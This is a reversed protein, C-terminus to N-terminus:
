THMTALLVDRQSPDGQSTVVVRCTYSATESDTHSWIDLTVKVNHKTGTPPVDFTATGNKWETTIIPAWSAKKYWGVNVVRVVWVKNGPCGRLSFTDALAGDNQLLIWFRVDTGDQMSVRATQREGTRNYVDDGRWPHVPAHECTDGWGCLKIWADPQHDPTSTAEARLAPQWAMVSVLLLLLMPVRAVRTEM